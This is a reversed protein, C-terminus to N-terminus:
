SVSLMGKLDESYIQEVIVEICQVLSNGFNGTAKLYLVTSSFVQCWM